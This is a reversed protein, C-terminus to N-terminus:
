ELLIMSKTWLEPDCQIEKPGCMASTVVLHKYMKACARQVQAHLIASDGDLVRATYALHKHFRPMLAFISRMIWPMESEPVAISFLFRCQGPATPVAYMPMIGQKGGEQLGCM